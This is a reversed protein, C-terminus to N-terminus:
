IITKARSLNGKEEVLQSMLVEMNKSSIESKEESMETYLKDGSRQNYSRYVKPNASVQLDQSYM